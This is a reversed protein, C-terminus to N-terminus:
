KSPGRWTPWMSWVRRRRRLPTLLRPLADLAGIRRMDTVDRQVLAEVYDRYWTAAGRRRGRWRRRFDM